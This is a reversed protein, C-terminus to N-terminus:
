RSVLFMGMVLVALCIATRAATRMVPAPIAAHLEVGDGDLGVLLEAFRDVAPRQV